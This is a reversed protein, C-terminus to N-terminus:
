TLTTEGKALETAHTFFFTFFFITLAASRWVGFAGRPSEKMTSMKIKTLIACCHVSSKRIRTRIIDSSGERKLRCRLLLVAVFNFLLLWIKSIICLHIVVVSGSLLLFWAHYVVEAKM